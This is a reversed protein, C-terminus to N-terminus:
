LNYEQAKYLFRPKGMVETNDKYSKQARLNLSYGTCPARVDNQRLILERGM